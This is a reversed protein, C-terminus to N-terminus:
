QSCSVAAGTPPKETAPLESLFGAYCVTRYNKRPNAGTQQRLKGWPRLRGGCSHRSAGSERAAALRFPAPIAHPAM